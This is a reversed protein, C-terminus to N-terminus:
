LTGDDHALAMPVGQIEHAMIKSLDVQRGSSSAVLLRKFIYRDAKLIRTKGDASKVPVEHITAFMKSNNRNIKYNFNVGDQLCIRDKLLERMSDQGIKEVSM